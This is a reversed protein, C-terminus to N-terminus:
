AVSWTGFGVKGADPMARLFLHKNATRMTICTRLPRLTCLAHQLRDPNDPPHMISKHTTFFSGTSLSWYSIIPSRGYWDVTVDCSVKLCAASIIRSGRSLGWDPGDSRLGFQALPSDGTRSWRCREWSRETSSSKRGGKAVRVLGPLWCARVEYPCCRNRVNAQIKSRRKKSLDRAFVSSVQLSWGTEHM